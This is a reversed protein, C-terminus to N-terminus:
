FRRHVKITIECGRKINGAKNTQKKERVTQKIRTEMKKEMEIENKRQASKVTSESQNQERLTGVLSIKEKLKNGVLKTGQTSKM